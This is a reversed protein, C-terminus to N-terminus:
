ISICLFLINRSWGFKAWKRSIHLLSGGDIAQRKHLIPLVSFVGCVASHGLCGQSILGSHDQSHSPCPHAAAKTEPAGPSTCLCSDEAKLRSLWPVNVERGRRMPQELVPSEWTPYDPVCLVTGAWHLWLGPLLDLEVSRHPLAQGLGSAPLGNTLPLLETFPM